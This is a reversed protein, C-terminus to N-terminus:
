ADFALATASLLTDKDDHARYSARVRGTLTDRLHVPHDRTSEILCCTEPAQAHMYPYWAYALLGGAAHPITLAPLGIGTSVGIETTYYAAVVDSLDHIELAGSESAAALASGDPSWRVSRVFDGDPKPQSEAICVPATHPCYEYAYAANPIPTDDM